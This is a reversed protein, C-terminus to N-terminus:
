DDSTQFFDLRRLFDTCFPGSLFVKINLGGVINLLRTFDKKFGESKKKALLTPSFYLLTLNSNLSFNIFASLAKLGMNELCLILHKERPLLCSRLVTRILPPHQDKLSPFSLKWIVSESDILFPNLRLFIMWDDHLLQADQAPWPWGVAGYVGLSASRGIPPVFGLMKAESNFESNLASHLQLISHSSLQTMVLSLFSIRFLPQARQLAYKTLSM